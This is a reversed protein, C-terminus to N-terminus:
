TPSMRRAATRLAPGAGLLALAPGLRGRRALWAGQLLPLGGIGTGTAARVTGPDPSAAARLQARAVVGAYTAHLALAALRDRTRLSGDRAAALAGAAAVAGTVAAATRAVAPTSGHVEGRSLLTVGVTHAAMAAAPGAATRPSDSAGLLVDLGRTSAMVAPGAVSDKAVTDYLCVLAALPVSVRLAARGGVVASAAVGTAGLASALALATAAPVRGSPIPREPRETADVARDAWDNLAMGSWYLLVSSVPMAWDRAAPRPRVATGSWADGPVTLAAPLRVLEALDAFRVADGARRVPGVM